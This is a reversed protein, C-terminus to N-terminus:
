QGGWTLKFILADDVSKFRFVRNCQYCWRRDTDVSIAYQYFDQNHMMTNQPSAGFADHLWTRLDLVMTHSRQLDVEVPFHDVMIDHLRACSVVEGEHMGKFDRHYNESTAYKM